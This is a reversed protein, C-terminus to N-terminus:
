KKEKLGQELLSLLSDSFATANGRQLEEKMDVLSVAPLMGKGFRETLPCLTYIGAKSKAYSEVSPTASALLLLAGHHAARFRAVDRAHFRPASESKYTHEQEEDIVLLSIKEFPAFVASRTGVVITALGKKVRKWEDLREGMSLRSHFVAVQSGYRSKFIAVAQPTLSIEPVMVVIGEGPKEKMAKDILKLYVSTKGSGTVGYLLAAAPAPEMLLASLTEYVQMQSPSLQIDGKHSQLIQEHPTRFTEEERVWVFGKKAMTNVVANTVGTYYCVEKVSAQGVQSLLEWVSKQKKTFTKAVQEEQGLPTLTVMQLTADGMRRIAEKERVLLGKEVLTNLEKGDPSLSYKVLLTDESLSVKGGQLDKCLGALHPPLTEAEKAVLDPDTGRYYNVLQMQIGAPLMTKCADHFTCFTHEKLWFSLQVMEENLLPHEDLVRIIPKSKPHPEGQSVELVFGTRYANGGGFPVVVRAGSSPPTIGQPVYYTYLKDFHFAVKEVAVGVLCLSM